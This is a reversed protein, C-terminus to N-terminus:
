VLARDYRMTSIKLITSLNHADTGYYSYWKKQHLYKLIRMSEPGYVGIPSLLNMQYEAGMDRYREFTDLSNALYLYREPHALVPTVNAMSLAFLAQEINSSPYLYSMEVLVKGPQFQLLKSFDRKEFGKVVMYEAGLSLKVSSIIDPPLSRTFEDYRSLLYGETNSHFIDPNIHPTLVVSSIGMSIYQRLCEESEEVTNVGDDVGPLIHCHVDSNFNLDSFVCKRSFWHFPM